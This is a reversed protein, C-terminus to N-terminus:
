RLPAAECPNDLTVPECSIRTGMASVLRMAARARHAGSGMRRMRRLSFAQCSVVAHIALRNAIQPHDAHIFITVQQEYFPCNGTATTSQNLHSLTRLATLPMWM